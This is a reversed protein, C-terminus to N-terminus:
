WYFPLRQRIRSGTNRVNYKQGKLKPPKKRGEVGQELSGGKQLEPCM